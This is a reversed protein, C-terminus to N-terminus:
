LFYYAFLLFCFSTGTDWITLNIRKMGCNILKVKFDVGTGMCAPPSTFRLGLCVAKCFHLSLKTKGITCPHEEDFEDDTFRLLISSKGVSSDGIILLKFLHHDHTTGNTAQQPNQMKHTNM